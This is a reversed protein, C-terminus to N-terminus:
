QNERRQCASTTQECLRVHNAHPSMASENRTLGAAAIEGLLHHVSCAEATHFYHSLPLDHRVFVQLLARFTSATGEEEVLLASYVENTADDM